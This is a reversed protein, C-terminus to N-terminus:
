WSLLDEFLSLYYFYFFGWILVVKLGSKEGGGLRGVGYVPCGTIVLNLELVMAQTPERTRQGRRECARWQRGRRRWRLCSISAHRQHKYMCCPTSEDKAYYLFLGTVLHVGKFYLLSRGRLCNCRRKWFLPYFSQHWSLLGESGIYSAWLYTLEFRIHRAM